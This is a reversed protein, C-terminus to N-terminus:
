KNAQSEIKTEEIPVEEPLAEPLEDSVALNLKLIRTDGLKMPIPIYLKNLWGIEPELVDEADVAESFYVPHEGDVSAHIAFLNPGFYAIDRHETNGRRFAVYNELILLIERLLEGSVSPEAVFISAWGDDFFEVAVSAKGSERYKALVKSEAANVYFLPAWQETKGFEDGKKMWRGGTLQYASGAAAPKDFMEVQMGTTESVNAVDAKESLYGPAYLWIAASGNAIMINRLQQRDEAHLHFANVFLYAAAPAAHGDLVDQLLCFQVPAGVRLAADRARLLLLENLKTDCRQYFRSAEDVVVMLTTRKQPTPYEVFEGTRPAKEGNWTADYAERMRNFMEWMRPEYLAGIGQDDAWALALGHTLVSAYNRKQVRMVDEPRLGEIRDVAGTQSNRSIGTRTDDVVIWQRAHFAASNVPGMFGGAGGLGRDQYSVPSVFGDIEGDLLLGLAFHGSANSTLEFTQGYPVYLKLYNQATQHVHGALNSIFDATTESVFRLYDIQNQESPYAFFVNSQDNNDPLPPIEASELTITDTGWAARLAADDPYTVRLWDRFAALNPASRDYDGTRMWRDEELGGLLFGSVRAGRGSNEIQGILDSLAGKCAALWEKSAISAYRKAGETSTAIAEPHADLWADPPNLSIGLIISAGPDEQEIRDLPYLAANVDQGLEPWPFQMRLIHDHIGAAAALKVEGAVAEVDSGPQISGYFFLPPTPKPREVPEPAPTGPAIPAVAPKPKPTEGPPEPRRGGLFAGLVGALVVIGIAFAIRTFIGQSDSRARRSM